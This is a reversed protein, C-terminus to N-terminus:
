KNISESKNPPQNPEILGDIQEIEVIHVRMVLSSEDDDGDGSKLSDDTELVSDDHDETLLSSSKELDHPGNGTSYPM